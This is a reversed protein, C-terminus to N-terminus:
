RIVSIKLIMFIMGNIDFVSEDMNGKILNDLSSIEDINYPKVSTV